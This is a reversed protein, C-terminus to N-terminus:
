SREDSTNCGSGAISSVLALQVNTPDYVQTATATTFVVTVAGATDKWVSPGLVAAVEASTGTTVMCDFSGTSAHTLPSLHLDPPLQSEVQSLAAAQSTNDAFNMNFTGVVNDRVEVATWEANAGAVDPGSNGNEGGTDTPQFSNSTHSRQWQAFTAGLGTLGAKSSGAGGPSTSTSTATPSVTTSSRSGSSASSGGGCGVLAMALFPATVAWTVTSPLSRTRRGASNGRLDREDRRRPPRDESVATRIKATM